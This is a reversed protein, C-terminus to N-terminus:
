KPPDQDPPPTGGGPGAGDNKDLQDLQEKIGLGRYFGDSFNKREENFHDVIGQFQEALDNKLDKILAEPNLADRKENLKKILEHITDEQRELIKSSRSRIDNMHPEDLVGSGDLLGLEIKLEKLFQIRQQHIRETETNLKDVLGDITNVMRDHTEDIKAVTNDREKVISQYEGELKKLQADFETSRGALGLQYGSKFRNSNKDSNNSGRSNNTGESM